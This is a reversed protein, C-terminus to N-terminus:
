VLCSADGTLTGAQPGTAPKRLSVHEGDRELDDLGDHGTRGRGASQRGSDGGPQSFMRCMM